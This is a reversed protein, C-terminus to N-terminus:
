RGRPRVVRVKKRCWVSSRSTRNAPSSSSGSTTARTKARAGAPSVGIWTLDSVPGCSRSAWCHAVKAREAVVPKMSRPSVGTCAPMGAASATAISSAAKVMERSSGTSMTRSVGRGTGRERAEDAERATVRAAHSWCRNQTLPRARPGSSTRRAAPVASRRGPLERLAGGVARERDRAGAGRGEFVPPGSEVDAATPLGAALQHEQRPDASPRVPM